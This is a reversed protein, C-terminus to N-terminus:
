SKASYTISENEEMAQSMRRARLHESLGSLQRSLNIRFIFNKLLHFFVREQINLFDTM